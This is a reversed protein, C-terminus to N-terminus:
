LSGGSASPNKDTAKKDIAKETAMSELVEDAQTKANDGSPKLKASKASKASKALTQDSAQFAELAGVPAKVYQTIAPTTTRMKLQAKALSEVRLPTAQSRIELRLRENEIELKHAESKDHELETFFRRSDYQTRVLYLASLIVAMVLFLNLRTM